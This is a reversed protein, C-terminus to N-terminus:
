RYPRFFLAKEGVGKPFWNYAIFITLAYLLRLAWHSDDFRHHFGGALCSTEAELSELQQITGAPLMTDAHLFLLFEGTAQRAGRNMQRGRGPSGCIVTVRDFQQAIHCTRDESQGDSVIVEFSGLQGCIAALTSPLHKEENLTPIIVSIM